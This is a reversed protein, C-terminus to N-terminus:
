EVVITRQVAPAHYRAAGTIVRVNPLPTCEGGGHTHGCLVTLRVAPHREMVEIIAEGM